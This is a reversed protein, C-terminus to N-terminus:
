ELLYFLSGISHKLYYDSLGNKDQLGSLSRLQSRLPKNCLKFAILYFYYYKCIPRDTHTFTYLKSTCSTRHIIKMVSEIEITRRISNSDFARM